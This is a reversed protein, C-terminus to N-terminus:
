ITIWNEIIQKGVNTMISEPHYQIGYIPLDKHRFSMLIGAEDIATPILNPANKLNLAWSHYRGVEIKSAIGKYLGSHNKIEIPTQMGHKVSKMNFLEAGFYEGLAQCGLCVGLFPKILAYEQILKSMKGAESPLGPGPSLIIAHFENVRDFDIEDNRWVEFNNTYCEIIHVLNYTFSDYNDIILIKM